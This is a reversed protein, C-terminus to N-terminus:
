EQVQSALVPIVMFELGALAIHPIRPWGTAKHSLRLFLYMFRYFVTGLNSGPNIYKLPVDFTYVRDALLSPLIEM